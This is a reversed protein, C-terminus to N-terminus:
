RSKGELTRLRSRASSADPGHPLIQLYRRYARLASTKHGSERHAEALGYLATGNTPAGALAQKFLEIAQPYQRRNLAAYGQAAAIQPSPRLVAGSRSTQKGRSASSSRSARAAARAAARTKKRVHARSPRPVPKEEPESEAEAEPEAEPEPTAALPEIDAQPPTPVSPVPPMSAVHPAAEANAAGAAIIPSSPAEQEPAARSRVLWQLLAIGPYAVVAAVLTTLVLKVPLTFRSPRMAVIKTETYEEVMPFAGPAPVITSLVPKPPPPTLLAGQVLLPAPTDARRSREASEAVEFFPVLEPVDGIREWSQGDRMIKDGRTVRREIIWRHLSAADPVQMSQGHVTEVLWNLAESSTDTPDPPPTADSAAPGIVIVHGCDRCQVATGSSGTRATELKQETQCRDCRVEM